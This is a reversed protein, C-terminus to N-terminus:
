GKGREKGRAVVHKNELDTLRKRNQLYLKNIDHRKILLNQMYPIDYETQVLGNKLQQGEREALDCILM